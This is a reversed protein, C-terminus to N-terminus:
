LVSYFVTSICSAAITIAVLVVPHDLFTACKELVDIYM